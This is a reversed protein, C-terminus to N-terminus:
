VACSEVWIYLKQVTIFGAIQSTYNERGRKEIDIPTSM